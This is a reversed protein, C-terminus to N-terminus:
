KGTKKSPEPTSTEATQNKQQVMLTYINQFGTHMGTRLEHMETRFEHMETRLEHIESTLREDLKDIRTDLKDISKKTEDYFYKTGLGAIGLFLAAISLVNAHSTKGSELHAIRMLFTNMHEQTPLPQTETTSTSSNRTVFTTLSFRSRNM